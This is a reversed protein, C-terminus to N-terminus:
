SCSRVLMHFIATCIGIGIFRGFYDWFRDWGSEKPYQYYNQPPVKSYTYTNQRGWTWNPQYDSTGIDDQPTVLIESNDDSKAVTGYEKKYNPSLEKLKKIAPEYKYGASKQLWYRALDVDVFPSDPNDYVCSLVYQAEANGSGAFYNLDNLAEDDGSMAQNYLDEFNMIMQLGRKM